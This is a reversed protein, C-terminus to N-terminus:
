QKSYLRCKGYTFSLIVLSFYIVTISCAKGSMFGFSYGNLMSCCSASLLGLYGVKNKRKFIYLTNVLYHYIFLVLGTYGLSGYIGLFNNHADPSAKNGFVTAAREICAFGWGLLPKQNALNMMIDWLESRGTVSELEEVDKGPMLFLILHLILDQNLYLFLGFIMLLLAYIFKGSFFLGIIMGFVASANAGSSTSTILVIVSIIMCWKLYMSREKDKKKQTLYESICYSFCMAASSGSPLYHIIVSPYVLVRYLITEFLIIMMVFALFSKEMTKFDEMSSFLWVLSLIIIINQFSLFFAFTPIFAWLTSTLAFIYLILLSKISNNTKSLSFNVINHKKKLIIFFLGFITIVQLAKALGGGDAAVFDVRYLWIFFLITLFRYPKSLSIKLYKFIFNLYFAM